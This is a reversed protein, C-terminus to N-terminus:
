DMSSLATCNKFAAKGIVEIYDPLDVTTLKDFGEFASEGIETVKIGNIEAPVELETIANNTCGLIVIKGNANMNFKVGNTLGTVGSATAPQAAVEYGNDKAFNYATSFLETVITCGAPIEAAKLMAATIATNGLITLKTLGSQLFAAEGLTKVSSPITFEKLESCGKVFVEPIATMGEPLIVSTLSRCSNLIGAKLVTNAGKIEFTKLASSANFAGNWITKVTAPIVVSTLGTHGFAQAGIDTVTSSLNLETIGDQDCFAYAGITTVGEPITLTGTLAVNSAFKVASDPDDASPATKGVAVVPITKGNDEVTAPLVLDKGSTGKYGTLTAQTKKSNLEYTYLSVKTAASTTTVHGSVKESHYQATVKYTYTKEAEMTTDTYSREDGAAPGIAKFEGTSDEREVHFGGPNQDIEWKLVVATAEGSDDVSVSLNSVAAQRAITIKASDAVPTYVKEKSDTIVYGRIMYEAVDETQNVEAIWYEEDDPRHGIEYDGVGKSNKETLAVYEGDVKKFIEYCFSDVGEAANWFLVTIDDKNNDNAEVFYTASTVEVAELGKPTVPEASASVEGVSGESNQYYINVDYQYTEGFEVDTDLWTTVNAGPADEPGAFLSHGNKMINYSVIGTVDAPKDWTLVVGGKKLEYVAKVNTLPQRITVVVPASASGKLEMEGMKMVPIVRFTYSKGYEYGEPGDEWMAWEVARETVTAKSVWEGAAEDFLEVVYETAGAVEAWDLDIFTDFNHGIVVPARLYDIMVKKAASRAEGGEYYTILQYSYTKGLDISEDIYQAADKGVAEYVFGDRLVAYGTVNEDNAPNWTLKVGGEAPVFEATELQVATLPAISIETWEGTLTLRSNIYESTRLAFTYKGDVTKLSEAEITCYEENWFLAISEWEGDATKIAIEIDYYDDYDWGLEVIGAGETSWNAYAGTVLPLVPYAPTVEAPISAVSEGYLTSIVVTYKYTKGIEALTDVYRMEGDNRSALLRGLDNDYDDIEDETWRYLRYGKPSSIGNTEWVLEVGGQYVNYDAYLLDVTGGFEFTVSEDSDGYVTNPYAEFHPIVKFTIETPEDVSVKIYAETKGDTIVESDSKMGDDIVVEYEFAFDVPNWSLKVGGEALEAKLGTVKLDDVGRMTLTRTESFAGAVGDKVARVRFSLKGSPLSDVITGVAPTGERGEVEEVLEYAHTEPNLMYLEYTVGEEYNGSASTWSFSALNLSSQTAMYFDPADAWSGMKITHTVAASATGKVDNEDVPQVALKYAKNPELGFVGAAWLGDNESYSVQVDDYAKGNLLVIFDRTMAYDVGADFIVGVTTENLTVTETITPKTKWLDVVKVTKAASALGPAGNKVPRVTIKYSGAGDVYVTSAYNVGEDADITDQVEGNVLVEFEQALNPTSGAKFTVLIEGENETGQVATLITPKLNWLEKVSVSKAASAAGEEWGNEGDHMPVVTFKHSGKVLATEDEITYTILGTSDNYYADWNTYEDAVVDVPKKGFARKLRFGEWLDTGPDFVIEVAGDKDTKQVASKIVPKKNWLDTVKVTKAASATGYVLNGKDDYIPDGNEDAKVPKISYAYSGAKEIELDIETDSIVDSVPTNKVFVQYLETVGSGPNWSLHVIRDTDEVQYAETITPKASWQDKVTISMTKSKTGTEGTTVKVPQVFYSHKTGKVSSEADIILENDDVVYGVLVNQKNIIEYVEYGEAEVKSIWSLRVKGEEGGETYQKATLTPADKWSSAKITLKKAASPTGEKEVTSDATPKVPVVVFSHSGAAIETPIEVTAETRYFIHPYEDGGYTSGDVKIIFAETLNSGATWVLDVTVYEETGAGQKVTKITPKKNWYEVVNVAKAASKQTGEVVSEDEVSVPVIQFSHKGPEVGFLYYNVTADTSYVLLPEEYDEGGMYGPVYSNLYSDWIQYFKTANSARKWTLQVTGEDDTMQKAASLTPKKDWLNTVTVKKPASVTKGVGEEGIPYGDADLVAPRLTYNHVGAAIDYLKFSYTAEGTPIYYEDTVTEKEVGDAEIEYTDYLVYGKTLAKSGRKITFMVVGEEGGTTDQKAVSITPKVDWLPKVTVTKTASPLGPESDGVKMPVVYYTHEGEAQDELLVTMDLTSAVPVAYKETEIAEVAAEIEAATGVTFMAGTLSTEGVEYEVEEVVVYYDARPSHTWKLEVQGEAKTTIQKAASIKPAKSRWAISEVNLTVINSIEGEIEGTVGNIVPAVGYVHVGAAVKSLTHTMKDTTALLKKEGTLEYLKFKTGEPQGGDAWSLEVTMDTTTSQKVELEVAGFVLANECVVCANLESAYKHPETVWDPDKVFVQAVLAGCDKCYTDNTVEIWATHTGDGNDVADSSRHCNKDTRKNKHACTSEAGCVWCEGDDYDHPETTWAKPKVIEQKILEDCDDCWTDNSVEIMASHTGDGNDVTDTEIEFYWRVNEHYSTNKHKCPNLAGCGWCEGENYDHPETVPHREVIVEYTITSRCDKCWTENGIEVDITHTGDGNDTGDGYTRRVGEKYITNEHTCTNEADCVWCRNDDMSFEHHENEVSWPEGDQAEDYYLWNGCDDCVVSVREQYTADHTGDGNDTGEIALTIDYERTNTHPCGTESDDPGCIACEEGSEETYVHNESEVVYPEGEEAYRVWEGCDDCVVSTKDQYTVRHTGDGNDTASLDITIEHESTNEHPCVDATVEGGLLGDPIEPLVVEDAESDSAEPEEVVPEETPEVVPEEIVPEETPEVVPEEIVPEETVEPELGETEEEEAAFAANLLVAEGKYSVGGEAEEEYDAAEEESLPKVVYAAVFGKVVEDECAFRLTLVDQDEDETEERDSVYVVADDEFVGLVESLEEDAYVQEGDEIYAYGDVFRVEEVPAETEPAVPEETEEVVPEETEEVVPDETEEVVPEETEEVVPEETEEVVPEETEEVVPEETEEVVPEEETEEVVPEEETEEVVPEEETEPAVPEEETEEVVPEEETEEVVPEEETEEVVPEEAVVVPEETPEPTPEKTPEPTPEKTPEPTPEKTPEPTPKETPKPTPEEEEEEEVPEEVVVEVVAEEGEALATISWTPMMTVLMCVCLILSLVRRFM